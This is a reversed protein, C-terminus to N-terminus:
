HPSPRALQRGSPRTSAPRVCSTRIVAALDDLAGNNKVVTANTHELLSHAYLITNYPEVVRDLNRPGNNNVAVDNRMVTSNTHVLLSFVCLKNNYPEVVMDLYRRCIDDLAVTNM